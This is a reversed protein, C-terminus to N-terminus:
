RATLIKAARKEWTFQALFSDLATQGLRARMDSDSALANIAAVWGDVDDAKCLLVERGNTVVERIAAMDTAIIARAHAMYEFLKLPSMWRALDFSTNAGTVSSGYPALAVDLQRIEAAVERNPLFGRFTVREGTQAKWTAIQEESGGVVIFDHESRQAIQAILEMGKGPYLSGVYGVRLRARDQAPGPAAGEIPDTGSTAVLPPARLKGFHEAYYSALAENIVVLRKFSRLGVLRKFAFQGSRSYAELPGHAEHMVALGLLGAAYCSRICRGFVLDSGRQAARRAAQWAFGFWRAKGLTIRHIAFPEECGYYALAQEELMPATEGQHPVVLEVDWGQRAFAACMRMVQVTSAGQSPIQANHIYTLRPM